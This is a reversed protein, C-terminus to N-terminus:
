SMYQRNNVTAHPLDWEALLKHKQTIM